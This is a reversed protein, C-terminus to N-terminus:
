GENDLIIEVPKEALAANNYFHIDVCKNLREQIDKQDYISIRNENRGLKDWRALFALDPLWPHYGIDKVKSLKKMPGKVFYWFRMHNLVLWYTKASVYDHVMEGSVQEHGKTIESKGVDHLMAALILDTDISERFAWWMTQLSHEFVDKEPHHKPKDEVGRTAELMKFLPFMIEDTFIKM